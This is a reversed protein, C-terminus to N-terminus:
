FHLPERNSHTPTAVLSSGCGCVIPNSRKSRSFSGTIMAAHAWCDVDTEAMRGNCRYWCVKIAGRSLTCTVTHRRVSEAAWSNLSTLWGIFADCDISTAHVCLYLSLSFRMVAIASLLGSVKMHGRVREFLQLIDPLWDIQFHVDIWPVRAANKTVGPRCTCPLQVSRLQWAIHGWVAERSKTGRVWLQRSVWGCWNM